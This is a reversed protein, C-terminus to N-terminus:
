KVNPGATGPLLKHHLLFYEETRAELANNIQDKRQQSRHKATRSAGYTIAGIGAVAIAPGYGIPWDFLANSLLWTGDGGLAIADSLDFEPGTYPGTQVVQGTDSYEISAHAVPASVILLASVLSMSLIKNM